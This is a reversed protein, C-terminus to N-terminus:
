KKRPIIPKINNYPIPEVNMQEWEQKKVSHVLAEGPGSGWPSDGEKILFTANWKPHNLKM